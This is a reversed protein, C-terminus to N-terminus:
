VDEGFVDALMEEASRYGKYNEPHRRMNEVERIAEMTEGNPRLDFPLGRVALSKHLFVNVAETLTMGYHAYISEAETKVSPDIRITMTSTKAMIIEKLPNGNVIYCSQIAFALV